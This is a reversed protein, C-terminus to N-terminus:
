RFYRCTATKGLEYERYILTDFIRTLSFVRIGPNEVKCVTLEYDFTKLEMVVRRFLYAGAEM